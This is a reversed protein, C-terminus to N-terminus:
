FITFKKKIFIYFEIEKMHFVSQGSPDIMQVKFVSSLDTACPGDMSCTAGYGLEREREIYIYYV